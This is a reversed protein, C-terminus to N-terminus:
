KFRGAAILKDVYKDMDVAGSKLRPKDVEVPTSTGSPFAGAEKRQNEVKIQKEKSAILANSMDEKSAVLAWVKFPDDLYSPYKQFMVRANSGHKDVFEKGFEEEGEKITSNIRSTFGLAQTSKLSAIEEEMAKIKDSSVGSGEQRIIERLSQLQERQEAGESSEILQDLKNLSKDVKKETTLKGARFDNITKTVAKEMEPSGKIEDQLKELDRLQDRQSQLEKKQTALEESKTRYGTDYLKVKETVAKIVDARIDERVSSFDIDQVVGELKEGSQSSETSTAVSKDDIVSGVGAQGKNSRLKAILHNIM